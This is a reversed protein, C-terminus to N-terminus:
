ELFKNTILQAWQGWTEVPQDCVDVMGTVDICSDIKKNCLPDNKLTEVETLLECIKEEFKLLVNKVIKKGAATEVYTLCEEGLASLDIEELQTYIDQTTESLNLCDNEDLSSQTNVTSEYDICESQMRTGCTNKIKNCNKM